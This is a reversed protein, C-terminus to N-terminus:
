REVPEEVWARDPAYGLAILLEGAIRCFTHREEPSLDRRWRGISKDHVGSDALPNHILRGARAEGESESPSLLAPTFELGLFECLRRVSPEPERVVDEYRIETCRPHDRFALGMSAENRWQRACKTIPNNTNIPVVRGGRIAQRPHHRLSCAVDRGDRILHVVRANPFWALIKALATANRPTKDAWRPKGEREALRGFFREAFRVVSASERLMSEIEGVPMDWEVSMRKPNVLDCLFATEPGFALDPHRNLTERLLTTGSRGCGVIFVADDPCTDRTDYWSGREFAARKIRHRALRMARRPGVRHIAGLLSSM